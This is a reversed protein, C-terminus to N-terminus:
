CYSMDSTAKENPFWFKSVISVKPHSAINSQSRIQYLIYLLVMRTHQHSLILLVALSIVLFM